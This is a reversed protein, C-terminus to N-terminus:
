KYNGCSGDPNVKRPGGEFLIRPCAGDVKKYQWYYCPKGCRCCGAKRDLAAQEKAYPQMLDRQPRNPRKRSSRPHGVFTTKIGDKYITMDPPIKAEGNAYHQFTNPKCGMAAACVNCSGEAVLQGAKFVQYSHLTPRGM